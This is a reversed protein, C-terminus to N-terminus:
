MPGVQNVFAQINKVTKFIIYFSKWFLCFTKDSNASVLKISGHLFPM